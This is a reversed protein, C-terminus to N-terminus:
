EVRRRNTGLLQLSPRGIGVHAVVMLSYLSKVEGGPGLNILNDEIQMNSGPFMHVM